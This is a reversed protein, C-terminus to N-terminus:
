EININLIHGKGYPTGILLYQPIRAENGENDKAVIETYFDSHMHGCFCAKIIDANTKIINCIEASASGNKESIGYNDYSMTAYNKDGINIAKTDKDEENQTALNIHFFLLAIYGNERSTQLDKKLPEIQEEFFKCGRSSNDMQILMVRNDLVKSSYRIDNPWIDRIRKEKEEIPMTDLVTGQVKRATEHNGLSAIVNDYTDFIHKKALEICGYSLYDLIDGTIVVADADKTHELCRIANELSAGNKLWERHEYTSMLTPDNEEFDQKNCLNLHLDTLHAIKLPAGNKNAKITIDRALVGDSLLTEKWINKSNVTPEKKYTKLLFDATDVDSTRYISGVPAPSRPRVPVLM